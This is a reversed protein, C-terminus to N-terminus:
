HATVMTASITADGIKNYMDFLEGSLYRMM